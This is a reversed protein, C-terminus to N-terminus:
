AFGIRKFVDGVYRTYYGYDFLRELAPGRLAAQVQPDKRLLDRFDLGEDWSRMAQKQVVGYAAERSMGGKEVLELLVRQSFALGRTSEVNALM